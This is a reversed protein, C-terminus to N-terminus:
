YGVAKLAYSAQENTFQEGYKSTLQDFLSSKSFSSSELYSAASEAAEENWDVLANQELYSIAFEADAKEFGEGYKSTLQDFLGKRSFGSYDLYSQASEIANEQALTLTTTPEATSETSGGTTSNSDTSVSAPEDASGSNVASSCGAVVSLSLFALIASIGISRFTNEQFLKM